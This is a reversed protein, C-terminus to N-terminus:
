TNKLLTEFESLKDYIIKVPIIFCGIPQLMYPTERKNIIAAKKILSGHIWNSM